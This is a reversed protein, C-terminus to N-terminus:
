RLAYMEEQTLEKVERAKGNVIARCAILDQFEGFRTALIEARSMGLSYGFYLFWPLSPKM